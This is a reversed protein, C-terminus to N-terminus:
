FTETALRSLEQENKGLRILGNITADVANEPIITDIKLEQSFYTEIGECATMGGTLLIGHSYIEEVIEPPSLEILERAADIIQNFNTLLSEKIESSKLRISKPLGNELSKGRVTFIREEKGFTLLQTKLEEVTNEGLVIGYKLYCYNYVLHNMHNGANKLTKNIVIGGGSIIAMEILGAGLDIIFSPQHSLINIGVGSAVALPKNICFTKVSGLKNMLEHVARQEIETAISPITTIIRIPPRISRGLYPGVAKDFFKQQLAVESDFDSIVSNVVPSVVKIFEPTKGQIRKAEEGFFLYEKTRDNFGTVSAERLIIGKDKLAFRTINTGLDICVDLYSLFPLNFKKVTDILNFM